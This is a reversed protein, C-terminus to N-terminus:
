YEPQNIVTSGKPLSSPDINFRQLQQYDFSYVSTHDLVVPITEARTGQLIKKAAHAATKGQFYGSKLVGGVIGYGLMADSLGYVPVASAESVSSIAERPSFYAGTNDRFFSLYFVVSNEDLSSVKDVLGPLSFDSLIEVDFKDEYEKLSEFFETQLSRSTTLNDNIVYLRKITPHLTLILEFNGKFNSTENVGTYNDFGMVKKETFNNIGCFVVPVGPFLEARYKRLFKLANDDSSIIVDIPYKQYKNNYIKKLLEFHERTSIMKTDMYEINIVIDPDNKFADNIAQVINDSWRFGHSYSNLILIRQKQKLAVDKKEKAYNHASYSVALTSLIILLLPKLISTNDLSQM